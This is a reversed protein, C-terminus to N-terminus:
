WCNIPLWEEMLQWFLSFLNPQLYSTMWGNVAQRFPEAWRLFWTTLPWIPPAVVSWIFLHSHQLEIWAIYCNGHPMFEGKNKTPKNLLGTSSPLALIPWVESITLCQFTPPCNKIEADCCNHDLYYNTLVFCLHGFHHLDPLHPCPSYPDFRSNALPRFSPVIKSSLM